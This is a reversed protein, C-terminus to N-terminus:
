SLDDVSSKSNSRMAVECVVPLFHNDYGTVGLSFTVNRMFVVYDWLIYRIPLQSYGKQIASHIFLHAQYCKYTMVM